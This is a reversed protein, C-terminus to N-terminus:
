LAIPKRTMELLGLPSIGALQSKARDKELHKSFKEFLIQKDSEKKLGIFDVVIIGGTDRLRLQKVIEACAELNIKIITEELSKRGVYKGTNVDIATLAETKDIVIYAGSKLNITRKGNEEFANSIKYKDLFSENEDVEIKATLYPKYEETFQKIKKYLGYSNVVCKKIEKSLLDRALRIELGPEKYLIAPASINQSNKKIRTWTSKLASLDNKIFRLEVNESATRIVFGCSDKSIEEVSQKIEDRKLADIKKSVGIKKSFPTLVVYNGAITIKTTVRAGKSQYPQKAVQVIIHQGKRISDIPILDDGWLQKEDRFFLFANKDLGIDVFAAEMGPLIDKVKGLCVDGRRLMDAGTKGMQKQEYFLETIEGNEILAAKTEEENDFITLEKTM